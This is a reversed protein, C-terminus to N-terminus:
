RDWLNLGKWEDLRGIGNTGAPCIAESSVSGGTSTLAVVSILHCAFLQVDKQM